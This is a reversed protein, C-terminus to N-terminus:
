PLDQASVAKGWTDTSGKIAVPVGAVVLTVQDASEAIRQNVLGLLDQFHRGLPEAPVLALGVEASVLFVSTAWKRAGELLRGTARLALSEVDQATKEKHELLVNAVWVDISDIIVTRPEVKLRLYEELREALELSEELTAWHAPRRQRHRRIRDEMEADVSIGTAVYVTPLDLDGALKEAFASKGSRVGGLILHVGSM